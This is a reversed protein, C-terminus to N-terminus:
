DNYIECHHALTNSSTDFTAVDPEEGAGVAQVQAVVVAIDEALPGLARAQAAVLGAALEDADSPDEASPSGHVLEIARPMLQAPPHYLQACTRQASVPKASATATPTAAPTSASAPAASPTPEDAATGTDSGCAALALPLALLTAAVSLRM